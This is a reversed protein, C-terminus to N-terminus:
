SMVAETIKLLEGPCEVCKRRSEVILLLDHMQRPYLTKVKVQVLRPIGYNLEGHVKFKM